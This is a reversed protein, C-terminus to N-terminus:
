SVLPLGSGRSLRRRSRTKKDWFSSGGFLFEALGTTSWPVFLFPSWEIWFWLGGSFVESPQQHLIGQRSIAYSLAPNTAGRGGTVREWKGIEKCDDNYQSLIRIVM